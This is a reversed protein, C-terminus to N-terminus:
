PKNVENRAGVTARLARYLLDWPGLRRRPFGEVRGRKWPCKFYASKGVVVNYNGVTLTGTTDNDIEATGVHEAKSADGGPWVEVTVVIM